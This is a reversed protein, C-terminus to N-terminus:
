PGYGALIRQGHCEEPLFVPTPQWPTKGVWYNFGPRKYRRCQCSEEQHQVWTGQNCVQFIIESTFIVLSGPCIVWQLKPNNQNEYLLATGFFKLLLLGHEWIAKLQDKFALQLLRAFTKTQEKLFCIYSRMQGLFWLLCLLIVQGTWRTFLLSFIRM